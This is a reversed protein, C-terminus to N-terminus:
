GENHGGNHMDTDKNSHEQLEQERWSREVQARRQFVRLWRKGWNRLETHEFGIAEAPSDILAQLRGEIVAFLGQMELQEQQLTQDLQAAQEKSLDAEKRAGVIQRLRNAVKRITAAVLEYIYAKILIVGGQSQLQADFVWQIVSMPSLISYNLLKDVINIGTGPKESWYSMVSTLIQHRAAESAASMTLLRDKCREVYSLLHSLSKSGAFCICTTYVDVAALFPETFGMGPAAKQINDLLTQVESDPAKNKILRLAERAELAFM